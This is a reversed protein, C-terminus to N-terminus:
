LDALDADSIGRSMPAAAAPQKAPAGSATAPPRQTASGQKATAQQSTAAPKAAGTAAKGALNIGAALAAQRNKPVDSVAPDDLPYCVGYSIEARSKYKGTELSMTVKAVIQRGKAALFSKWGIKTSGTAKDVTVGRGDVDRYEFLGLGVGFRLGAKVSGEAPPGVTPPDGQLSGFRVRHFLRSGAPSQGPVSELVTLHFCLAPAKPQGKDTLTELEEEVDSVEFHYWGEKDVMGGKDLDDQGYQEGSFEFDPEATAGWEQDISM